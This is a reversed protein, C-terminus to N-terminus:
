TKDLKRVVSWVVDQTNPDIAAQEIVDGVTREVPIHFQQKVYIKDMLKRVDAPTATDLVHIRAVDDLTIKGYMQAEIYDSKM